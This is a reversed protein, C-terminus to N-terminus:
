RDTTWKIGADVTNLYETFEQAYARKMITYTDDMYRRWVRPPHRAMDLARQELYEMYLNCVIPSVPSGMAAWHIQLYYERQFLFYTCKLHLSLLWIIDDPALPTRDSLTQDEELRWRIIKLAKDVPM